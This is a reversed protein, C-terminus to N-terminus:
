SQLAQEIIHNYLNEIENEIESESMNIEKRVEEHSGKKLDRKFKNKYTSAGNRVINRKCKALFDITNPIESFSKGSENIWILIKIFDGIRQADTRRYKIKDNEDIWLGLWLRENKIEVSTETFFSTEFDIRLNKDFLGKEYIKSLANVYKAMETNGTDGYLVHCLNKISNINSFVAKQFVRLKVDDFINVSSNLNNFFETFKNKEVERLNSKYDKSARSKPDVLLNVITRNQDHENFIEEVLELVNKYPEFGTFFMSMFQGAFTNEYFWNNFWINAPRDFMLANENLRIKQRKFYESNDYDTNKAEKEEDIIKDLKEDYAEKKTKLLDIAHKSDDDTPEFKEFEFVNALNEFLNGSTKNLIADCVLDYLLTTSTFQALEYDESSGSMKEEDINWAIVEQPINTMYKLGDLNKWEYFEENTFEVRNYQRIIGRTLTRELSRDDLLILRQDSVTKANKNIDIFLERAARIFERSSFEDDFYEYKPQLLVFNTPIINEPREEIGQEKLYKELAFFRHQGDIIIGHVINKDWQLHSIRKSDNFFEQIDNKNKENKKYFFEQSIAGENSEIKLSSELFQHEFEITDDTVTEFKPILIVVIPPFFNLKRENDLYYEILEEEVREEDLDRQVLLEFGLSNFEHIQNLIKLDNMLYSFPVNGLMSVYSFKDVKTANLWEYSGWFLTYKKSLSQYSDDFGFDNNDQMM